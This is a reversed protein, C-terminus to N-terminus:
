SMRRRWANWSEEYAKVQGRLHAVSAEGDQAMKQVCSRLEAVDQVLSQRIAALNDLRATAQLRETLEGFQQTYRDDREGVQAAAQAVIKLIERVEDTKESYLQAAKSSWATLEAEFLQETDALVKPDARVSQQLRLLAAKFEDGVPPCAQSGAVGVAALASKYSGLASTLVEELQLEM